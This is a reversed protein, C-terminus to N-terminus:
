WFWWYVQGHVFAYNNRPVLKNARNAGNFVAFNNDKKGREEKKEVWSYEQEEAKKKSKKFVEESISTYGLGLVCEQVSITM